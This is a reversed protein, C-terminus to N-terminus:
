NSWTLPLFLSYKDTLGYIPGLSQCQGPCPGGSLTNLVLICPVSSVMELGLLLTHMHPSRSLSTLISSMPFLQDKRHKGSPRHSATVHVTLLWVFRPKMRSRGRAPWIIESDSYHLAHVATCDICSRMGIALVSSVTCSSTSKASGM